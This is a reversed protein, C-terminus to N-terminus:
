SHGGLLQQVISFWETLCLWPPVHYLRGCIDCWNDAPLYRSWLEHLGGLGRALVPWCFMRHVCCRVSGWKYARLHGRQLQRMLSRRGTLLDRQYMPHVGIVIYGRTSFLEHGRPLEHLIGSSFREM